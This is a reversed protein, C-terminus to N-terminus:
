KTRLLNVIDLRELLRRNLTQIGDLGANRVGTRSCRHFSGGQSRQARDAEEAYWVTRKRPGGARTAGRM